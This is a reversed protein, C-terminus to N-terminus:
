VGAAADPNEESIFEVLEKLDALAPETWVIECEM